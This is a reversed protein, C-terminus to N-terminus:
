KQETAPNIVGEIFEIIINQIGNVAEEAVVKSQIAITLVESRLIEKEEKLRAVLFKADNTNVVHDVLASYREVANPLFTNVTEQLQEQKGAALNLLFDKSKEYLEQFNIEM